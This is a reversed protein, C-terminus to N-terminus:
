SGNGNAPVSGRRAAVEDPTKEEERIGLGVIEGRIRGVGAEEWYKEVCRMLERFNVPKVMFADVGATFAERRDNEAALGTLAIIYARPHTEPQTTELARIERTSEIGSFVPMQLDMLIVNYRGPHTRVKDLAQLGDFARDFPYNRKHLYKTLLMMNVPNDEVALIMPKNSTATPPSSSPVIPTPASHLRPPPSLSLSGPPTPLIPPVSSPSSPLGREAPPPTISDPSEPPSFTPPRQTPSLVPSSPPSASVSPPAHNIAIGDFETILGPFGSGTVESASVDTEPLEANPEGCELLDMCFKMARIFLQPGCPKRLYIMRGKLDVNPLLSTICTKDGAIRHSMIVVACQKTSTSLLQELAQATGDTVENVLVIDPHAPDCDNLVNLGHATAYKFFSEYLLKEASPDIGSGTPPSSIHNESCRETSFGLLRIEKGNMRQSLDGSNRADIGTPELIKLPEKQTLVVECAVTTGKGVQSKVDIKGGMMAVIQRVISMGLGAGASLPNEQSFPTFLRTKLFERSIGKGSDAVVLKVKARPQQTHPDPSVNEASLSVRVWGSPRNYKMANGVLNNIIRKFAAPNAQFLYGEARPEIDIIISVPDDKATCVQPSSQPESQMSSGLVALNNLAPTSFGKFGYGLSCGETVDQVLTSLDAELDSTLNVLLNSSTQSGCESGSEENVTDLVRAEDVDGNESVAVLKRENLVNLKQFELCHNITDLLTAGCSIVTDMLARQDYDLNTDSLFQASALIGHLPSRLEHSISSIFESKAKDANLINLRTIEMMISSAVASVFNGEIDGCFTREKVCTWVFSVAFLKRNHDYLPAIVVSKSGPLFKQLIQETSHPAFEFPDELGPYQDIQAVIQGDPSEQVLRNLIEENLESVDFGLGEKAPDIRGTWNETTSSDGGATSYGLIGSRQRQAKPRNARKEAEHEPDTSVYSTGWEPIDSPSDISDEEPTFFGELDGDVFVVNADMVGRILVAARSFMSRFFPEVSTTQEYNSRRRKGPSTTESVSPASTDVTVSPPSDCTTLTGPRSPSSSKLSTDVIDLPVPEKSLLVNVSDQAALSARTLEPNISRTLTEVLSPESSDSGEEVPLNQIEIIGPQTPRAHAILIPPESEAEELCTRFTQASGPRSIPPRRDFDVGNWPTLGNEAASAHGVASVATTEVPRDNPLLEAACSPRVKGQRIRKAMEAYQMEQFLQRKEEVKKKRELEKKRREELLKESWLRGDRREVMSAGDGPLFGEAIFRSLEMEMMKGKRLDRNGQKTELYKMFIDAMNLLQMREAPALGKLRPKDDLVCVTGISVGNRTRLPVGAYFRGHPWCRVYGANAYKPHYRLDPIELMLPEDSDPDPPVLSITHECLGGMSETAAGGGLFLQDGPDHTHPFGLSLSQTSEAIVYSVGQATMTIISRRSNVLRATLNAFCSLVPDTSAILSPSLSEDEAVFDNGHNLPPVHIQERASCPQYYKFLERTRLTHHADGLYGSGKVRGHEPDIDWLRQSGAQSDVAPGTM